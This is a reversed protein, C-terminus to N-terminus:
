ARFADSRVWVLEQLGLFYALGKEDPHRGLVLEYALTVDVMTAVTATVGVNANM